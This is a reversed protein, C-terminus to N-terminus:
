NQAHQMRKELYNVLLSILTTMTLYIIGVATFITVVDLTVGRLMSGTKTLEVVGIVSALSTEKILTVLENGLAPLVTRIAQPLIIFRVQQLSSFGLVHAADLQGQAVSAIGLRIIQSVYAASNLGIAVVAAWFYPLKIGIEPLLYIVIYLQILLPTGRIVTVYITILTNLLKNKASQAIGLLTGLLVGIFCSVFALQLTVLAGRLLAPLSNILLSFDIMCHGM